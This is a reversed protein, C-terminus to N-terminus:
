LVILPVYVMYQFPAFINNIQQKAKKLVVRKVIKYYVVFMRIMELNSDEFCVSCKQFQCINRLDEVFTRLEQRGLKM